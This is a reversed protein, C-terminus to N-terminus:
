LITKVMLTTIVLLITWPIYDYWIVINDEGNTNIYRWEKEEKDM